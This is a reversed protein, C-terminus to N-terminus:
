PARRGNTRVPSGGCDSIRVHDYSSRHSGDSASLGGGRAGAVAAITDSVDCTLALRLWTRRAEGQSLVPGAGLTLERIAALGGVCALDVPDWLTAGRHVSSTWDRICRGLGLANAGDLVFLRLLVVALEVEELAVEEAGAGLPHRVRQGNAALGIM